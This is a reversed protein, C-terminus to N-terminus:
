VFSGGAPNITGQPHMAYGNPMPTFPRMAPNSGPIQYSMMSQMQPMPVPVQVLGSVGPPQNPNQYSGPPNPLPTFQPLQAGLPRFSPAAPPLVGPIQPPAYLTPPPPLSQPNPNPNTPIPIQSPTSSQPQSQSQSSQPIPDPPNPIPNPPSPESNTQPNPQLTAPSSSDAM